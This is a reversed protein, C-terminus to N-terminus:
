RMARGTLQDLLAHIGAQMEPSISGIRERVIRRDVARIQFVLAVSIKALGNTHDPELILTGAFRAAAVAGTLPVVVVLPSGGAYTDDQLVVAPRRGAQEHGSLSPLEVWHIDGPKV